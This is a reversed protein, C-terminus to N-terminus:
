NDPRRAFDFREGERKTERERIAETESEEPYHAQSAGQQRNFWSSDNWLRVWNIEEERRM